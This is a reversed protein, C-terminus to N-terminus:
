SSESSKLHERRGRDHLTSHFEPQLPGLALREAAHYAVKGDSYEPTSRKDHGKAKELAQPILTSLFLARHEDLYYDVLYRVASNIAGPHGDTTESFDVARDRDTDSM